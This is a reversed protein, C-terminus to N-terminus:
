QAAQDAGGENQMALERAEDEVQLRADTASAAEESESKMHAAAIIAAEQNKAAIRNLEAASAAGRDPYARGGLMLGIFLAAALGAGAAFKRM